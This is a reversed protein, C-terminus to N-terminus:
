LVAAIEEAIKKAADVPSGIESMPEVIASGIIVSRAGDKIVDALPMTSERCDAIMLLGDLEGRKKLFALDQPRCIIGDCRALKACQAMQLVRAEVSDTIMALALSTKGKNIVAAIIANLGTSLDTIGRIDFMQVNLEAVARAAEGVTVPSGGFEGGFFVQGNCLRIVEVITRASYTLILKAGVRFCGVCPALPEVLARIKNLDPEDLGSLDVIIKERALAIKNENM